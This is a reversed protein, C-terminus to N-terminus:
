LGGVLSDSIKTLVSKPKETSIEKKIKKGKDTKQKKSKTVPVPASVTKTQTLIVEQLVLSVDLVNGTSATRPISRSVIAMNRYIILPTVVDVLTGKEIMDDILTLAVAVRDDPTDTDNINPSKNKEKELNIIPTNTVFGNLELMKRNRRIHDSIISGDEIPHETVTADLGHTETLICDFQLVGVTTKRKAGFVLNIEAM